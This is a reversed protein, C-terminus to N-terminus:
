KSSMTIVYKLILDQSKSDIVMGKKNAKATMEPVIKRWSAESESTPKKLEHCKACNNEYLKKGENLEALTYGPFKAAGRDIDSESSHKAERASFCGALSVASIIVILKKM